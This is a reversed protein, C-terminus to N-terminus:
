IISVDVFIKHLSKACDPCELMPQACQPLQVQGQSLVLYVVKYECYARTLLKVRVWQMRSGRLNQLSSSTVINWWYSKLLELPFFFQLYVTASLFLIPIKSPSYQSVWRWPFCDSSGPESHFSGPFHSGPECWAGPIGPLAGQVSVEVRSEQM